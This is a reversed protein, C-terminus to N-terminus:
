MSVTVTSRMHKGGKHCRKTRKGCLISKGERTGKPTEREEGEGRPCRARPGLHHDHHQVGREGAETAVLDNKHTTNPHKSASFVPQPGRRGRNAAISDSGVVASEPMGDSPVCGGYASSMWDNPGTATRPRPAIPHPDKRRSEEGLRRSNARIKAHTTM